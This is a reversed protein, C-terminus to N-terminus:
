HLARLRGALAVQAAPEAHRPEEGGGVRRDAERDVEREPHDGLAAEAQRRQDEEEGAQEEPQRREAVALPPRRGAGTPSPAAIHRSPPPDEAKAWWAKLSSIAKM